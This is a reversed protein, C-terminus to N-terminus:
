PQDRENGGPEVRLGDDEGGWPPLGRGDISKILLFGAIFGGLHAEWAIEADIGFIQGGIAGFLFNLLIWAGAFNLATRRSRFPMPGGPAPERSLGLRAIAGITGSIAGSAGILLAPSRPNVAFWTAAGALGCILFFLAFWAGSMRRAIGAGFALFLGMNLGLHLFDAHLLMHGPLGLIAAAPKAQRTGPDTYVSADFAFTEVLRFDVAAPLMLRLLHVGVIIAALWKVVAPANILPPSPQRRFEHHDNSM